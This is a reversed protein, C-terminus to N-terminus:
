YCSYTFEAQKEGPLLSFNFMVPSSTNRFLITVYSEQSNAPYTESIAAASIVSSASFRKSFAMPLSKWELSGGLGVLEAPVGEGLSGACLRFVTRSPTDLPGDDDDLNLPSDGVNVAFLGFDIEVDIFEDDGTHLGQSRPSRILRKAVKLDM